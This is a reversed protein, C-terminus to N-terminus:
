GQTNESTSDRSEPIRGLVSSICQLFGGDVGSPAVDHSVVVYGEKICQNVAKNLAGHILSSLSKEGCAYGTFVKYVPTSM